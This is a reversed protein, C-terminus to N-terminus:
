RLTPWRRSAVNEGPRMDDDADPLEVRAGMNVQGWLRFFWWSPGPHEDQYFRWRLGESLSGRDPLQAVERIVESPLPFASIKANAPLPAGTRDYHLGRVFKSIVADFDQRRFRFALAAEVWLGAATRVQVRAAGVAEPSSTVVPRVRGVISEMRARRREFERLSHAAAPNWTSRLREYVGAVALHDHDFGRAFVLAIAVQEEARKLRAGCAKCSPVTLRQVTPTTGDPYWSRPLVHDKEEPPAGLCYICLPRAV